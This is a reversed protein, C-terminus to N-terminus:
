DMHLIALVAKSIDTPISHKRFSDIGPKEAVIFARKESKITL